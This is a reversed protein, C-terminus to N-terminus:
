LELGIDKEPFPLDPTRPEVAVRLHTLDMSKRDHDPPLTPNFPTAQGSPSTQRQPAKDVELQGVTELASTKNGENREIASTLRDKNDTYLTLDDRVRTVTVNFLRQNSLNSETSSMVAIGKDATIGQAMHMNLAYALGMRELMPDGTKLEHLTKDAAEVTIGKDSVSVVRALAANLLGRDKDNQTWRIQDNEHLKISERQSLGLADRKDMPDIKQPDFRLTKSGSRLEM